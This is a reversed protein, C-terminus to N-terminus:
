LFLARVRAQPLDLDAVARLLLAEANVPPLPRGARAALDHALRCLVGPTMAVAPATLAMPLPRPAARLLPACRTALDLFPLRGSLAWRLIDGPLVAQRLGVCAAFCCVLTAQAPLAEALAEALASDLAGADGSELGAGGEEGGAGATATATAAGAGAAAAGDGGESGGSSEGGSDSHTGESSAGGNLLSSAGSSRRRRRHLARVKRQRQEKAARRMHQRVANRRLLSPVFERQLAESSPLHALWLQQAAARVAPPLGFREV